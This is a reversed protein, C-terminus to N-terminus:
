MVDGAGIQNTTLKNAASALVSSTWWCPQKNSLTDHNTTSSEIDLCFFLVEQTRPGILGSYVAAHTLTINTQHESTYSFM